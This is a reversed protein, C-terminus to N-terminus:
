KLAERFSLVEGGAPADAGPLASDGDAHNQSFKANIASIADDFYPETRDLIVVQHSGAWMDARKLFGLAGDFVVAMERNAIVDGTPPASGVPVITSRYSQNDTVFRDARLVDQLLGDAHHSGNVHIARRKPRADNPLFQCKARGARVGVTGLNPDCWGIPIIWPAKEKFKATAHTM